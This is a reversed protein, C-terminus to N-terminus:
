LRGQNKITFMYSLSTKYFLKYIKNKDVIMQVIRKLIVM